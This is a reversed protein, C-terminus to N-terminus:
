LAASAIPLRLTFVSGVGLESACELEGGHQVAVEKALALGLGTGPIGSRIAATSRQFRTFVRQVDEPAIGLGQDEVTCVAWDGDRSARLAVKTGSESYKLANSVLNDLVRVLGTRDGMVPLEIDAAVSVAIGRGEADPAASAAAYTLLRALDLRTRPVEATTGEVSAALIDDVMKRLHRANRSMVQLDSRAEPSLSPDEQLLEAYGLLSTLPTRFEHSMSALFSDRARVAAVVETVDSSALVIGAHAGAPDSFERASIAVMRADPGNGLRFIEHDLTAGSRARALPREDAAVPEGGERFVLLDGELASARGEPLAVLYLQRQKANLFINEGQDDIVLVGVDVTELVTDLLRERTESRALLEEVRAQQAVGRSTMAAIVVAVTILMLPAVIEAIFSHPAASGVILLPTWVMVVSALAGIGVVLRPRYGSGSLWMIPFVAVLALGSLVPTEAARVLGVPVFDLLPIALPAWSPLRRWPIVACAAFIVVAIAQGAAFAGESVPRIGALTVVVYILLLTINLPLQALIVRGRPGLGDFRRRGALLVELLKEM